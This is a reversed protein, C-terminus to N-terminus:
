HASHREEFKSVLTTPPSTTFNALIADGLIGGPPGNHTLTASGADNTPVGTIQNTNIYIVQGAPISQTSTGAVTGATDTLTLTVSIATNTTNMFGYSTYFGSFTSWRTSFLTTEHVTVFVQSASSNNNNLRVELFSASVNAVVSLKLYGCCDAPSVNSIDTITFGTAVDSTPCFFTNVNHVFNASGGGSPGHLTMAEFVYSRGAQVTFAVSLDNTATSLSFPGLVKGDPNAGVFDCAAKSVNPLVLLLVLVSLSLGMRRTM